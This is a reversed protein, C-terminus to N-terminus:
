INKGVCNVKFEFINKGEYDLDRSYELNVSSFSSAASLNVLFKAIGEQSLSYGSITFNAGDFLSSSVWVEPPILYRVDRLFSHVNYTSSILPATVQPAPGQLFSIEKKTQQIKNQLDQGSQARADAEQIKTDVQM